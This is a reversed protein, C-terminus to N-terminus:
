QGKGRKTQRDLRALAEKLHDRAVLQAHIDKKPANAGCLPLRELSMAARIVERVARPLPPTAGDPILYRWGNCLHRARRLPQYHCGDPYLIIRTAFAKPKPAPKTAVPVTRKGRAKLRAIHTLDTIAEEASKLRNEINSM